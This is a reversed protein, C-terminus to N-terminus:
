IQSEQHIQGLQKNQLYHGDHLYMTVAHKKLLTATPYTEYQIDESSFGRIIERYRRLGAMDQANLSVIGLGRDNVEAFEVVMCWEVKESALQAFARGTVERFIVGDPLKVIHGQGPISVKTVLIFDTCNWRVEQNAVHDQDEQVEHAEEEPMLDKVTLTAAQPLEPNKEKEPDIEQNTIIQKYGPRVIVQGTSFQGDSSDIARSIQDLIPGRHPVLEGQGVEM